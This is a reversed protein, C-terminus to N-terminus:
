NNSAAFVHHFKMISVQSTSPTLFICPCTTCNGVPKPELHHWCQLIATDQINQGWKQVTCHSCSAFCKGDIKYLRHSNYEDCRTLVDVLPLSKCCIILIEVAGLKGTILQQITYKLVQTKVRTLMVDVATDLILPMINIIPTVHIKTQHQGTLCYHWPVKINWTEVTM